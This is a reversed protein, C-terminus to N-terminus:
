ASCLDKSEAGAFGAPAESLIVARFNM